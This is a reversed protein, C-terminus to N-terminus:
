QLRVLQAPWGGRFARRWQRLRIAQELATAMKLLAAAHVNRWEKMFRERDAGRWEAGELSSTMTAVMKRVDAARTSLALALRRVEDVNMGSMNEVM